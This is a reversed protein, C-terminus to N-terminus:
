HTIKLTEHKEEYLQKAVEPNHPGSFDKIPAFEDSENVRLLEIDNFLSFADFIFTEFKFTNPKEPVQKMGEENVFNNKKFARHYPLKENCAKEIASINFLHALMNTERYLYNGNKDIANKMSSSLYNCDIIAPKGSKRVFIWDKDNIDKKFLTKSAVLKNHSITLGLFLPDVIDLIVNDVGGFSVWKINKEKMEELIGNRKISNFVDGNGNSSEKIKYTEELILNGFIDILPLESQKFFHICDKPYNFYNKQEFFKKTEEDNYISTMIYWPITVNYKNNAVKLTDCLLEFLSKKPNIDLEFTGKPGKYGLRTGQGGALIVVAFENNKIITNGINEYYSIQEKTLKSKITYELPEILNTSIVEDTKSAEYLDFIQDFNINCIQNILLTRQENNLENYFNLLHEQHYKELIEKAIEYNPMMNIM